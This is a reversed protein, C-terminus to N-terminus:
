RRAFPETITGDGRRLGYGVARDWVIHSLWALALVLCAHWGLLATILVALAAPAVRHAANYLPVARRPMVGPAPPTQGIAALFTLDPAILGVPILWWTGPTGVAIAAGLVVFAAALPVLTVRHGLVPRSVPLLWAAAHTSADTRLGAYATM